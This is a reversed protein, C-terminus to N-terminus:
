ARLGTDLSRTVMAEPANPAIADRVRAALEARTFPKSLHSAIVCAEFASRVRADSRGSMVVVPLRPSGAQLTRVFTPGDMGPMRYDTLVLKVADGHRAMKELAEAGDKATVARYGLRHLMRVAIRQIGVDDDVVLVLEAHGHHAPESLESEAPFYVWFTSGRDAESEVHLFGGHGKVIGLVNSLGLGTGEDPPKTTFFPDFMRVLVDPPIGSGSDDVRICVYAGTHAEPITRALEDDVSVASATLRLAGEGDMADRANVCLNLLVQQIQTAEASITPLHPDCRFGLDIEPPLSARIMGATEELLFSPDLSQREVATGRAFSLLQRTMKSAREASGELIDLVEADEPHLERLEDIAMLIPALANNFDHAVGSALKGIAELRQSRNERRERELRETLDRMIVVFCPLGEGLVVRQASLEVPVRRQAGSLSVEVRLAEGESSRAQDLLREVAKLDGPALLDRFSAGVLAESTSDLQLSAGRNAYMVRADDFDLIFTADAMADLAASLARMRREAEERASVDRVAVALRGDPDVKSVRIDVPFAEGSRRVASRPSPSPEGSEGRLVSPDFGLLDHLSLGVLQEETRDFMEAAMRNAERVRGAEDVMLIADPAFSFLDEYRRLNRRADTVDHMVVVAGVKRGADDYLPGGSAVVTRPAGGKVVISMEAARVDEGAYARMLPIRETALPTVGDGEFLDYHEAWKSPPLARPDARHWERAARNFLVLKGDADCAVVGEALNELM